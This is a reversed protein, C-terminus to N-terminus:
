TATPDTVRGLFVIAHSAQHYVFWLFPRDAVIRLPPQVPASTENVIATAAGAETGKEDVIVKAAHLADTAAIGPGIGAMPAGSCFGQPCLWGFLDTPPLSYTWKPMSLSMTTATSREPLAALDAATLSAEVAALGETATPVVLWMALGGDAYPLEVADAGHLAVHRRVVTPHSMFPAQVEPGAAAGTDAMAPDAALHFPRPTTHVADFPEAWDVKMYVTNVITLASGAVADPSVVTPVLGRTQQDAWHNIAGAAEAPRSTDIPQVGAGYFAAGTDVFSQLPTFAKDPFLRNAVTLTTTGTSAAALASIVDNAAADRGETPFQFITDLAQAPDPSAGARAYSFATGISVPSSVTNGTSTRHFAWGAADVGAAWQASPAAPDPSQRHAGADVVESGSGCAGLLMGILAAGTIMRIGM